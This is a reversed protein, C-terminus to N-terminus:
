DGHQVQQVGVYATKVKTYFDAAYKGQERPGYGSPKMGSLPVRYDLGATPLNVVALGSKINLRFHTAFRDHM